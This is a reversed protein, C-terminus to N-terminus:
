CGDAFIRGERNSFWFDTAQMGAPEYVYRRLLAPYTEDTAVEYIVALLQYGLNSYQENQGPEHILEALEARALLEVRSVAEYDYEIAYPIPQGNDDIIDPLGGTHDMLQQITVQGIPGEFDPLITAITDSFSLLGKEELVFGLVRTFEKTISGIMFIHDRTVEEEESCSASGFGSELLVNGGHTIRLIGSAGDGAAVVLREAVEVIRADVRAEAADVSQDACSGLFLCACTVSLAVKSMGGESIAPDEPM